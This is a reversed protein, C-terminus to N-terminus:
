RRTQELLQSAIGVKAQRLSPGCGRRYPALYARQLMLKTLVTCLQCGVLGFLTFHLKGSSPPNSFGYLQMDFFMVIRRLSQQAPYGKVVSQLANYLSHQLKAHWQLVDVM